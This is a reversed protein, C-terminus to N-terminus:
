EALSGLSRVYRVARGSADLRTGLSRGILGECATIASAEDVKHNGRECAIVNGAENIEVFLYLRKAPKGDTEIPKPLDEDQAGARLKKLEQTLQNQASRRSDPVMTLTTQAYGFTSSGDHAIPRGMKVGILPKCFLSALAEDGVVRKVECSIIRGDPGVWLGLDAGAAQGTRDVDPLKAIITQVMTMGASPVSLASAMSFIAAVVFSM